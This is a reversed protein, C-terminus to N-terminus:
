QSQRRLARTERKKKAADKSDLRPRDLEDTYTRGQIRRRYAMLKRIDEDDEHSNMYVQLQEVYRIDAYKQIDETGDDFRVIFELKGKEDESRRHSMVAVIRREDDDGAAIDVLEADTFLHGSTTFPYIDLKHRQCLKDQALNRLTYRGHTPDYQEVRFPGLYKTSLKSAPAPNRTLVLEGISARYETQRKPGDALDEQEDENESDGSDDGAEKLKKISKHKTL